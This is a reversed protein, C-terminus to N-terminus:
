RKHDVFLHYFSKLQEHWRNPFVNKVIFGLSAIRWCAAPLGKGSLFVEAFKNRLLVYKYPKNNYSSRNSLSAVEHDVEYLSFGTRNLRDLLKLGKDSRVYIVSVGKPNWYPDTQKIGWFDGIRIDAVGTQGRYQCQYCSPRNFVQSGYGYYTGYLSDIMKKGNEFHVELHPVFWGREKSRANLYVIPSHYRKEAWSKYSEAIRYSTVGMCILEITYLNVYEKRLFLKLAAVDCPCGVFLVLQQKDLCEKVQKFTNGKISQVYKSGSFQNLEHVTIAKKYYSKIYDASFSVGFVVGGDQIVLRSIETAVGGTACKELTKIDSSYGAFTSKYPNSSECKNFVPCVIQCLGCDSCKDEDVVPYYFGEEDYKMEIAKHGCISACAECGCCQANNSPDTKNISTWTSVIHSMEELEKLGM